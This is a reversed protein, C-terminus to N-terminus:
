PITVTGMDTVTGISVGVSNVVKISLPPAPVFVVNYTGASLGKIMFNGNVDPYTGISDTGTVAYIAPHQSVPSVVGKIAGSTAVTSTRIVPKLIYDGNGEQVISRSADFDLLVVYTIGNVLTYHVQLKLGSQQASPTKVPYSKGSIVVSNNTGLVLRIQSVTGSSLTGNALFTDVGNTLKTLDYVGAHTSLNVWGNDSNGSNVQVQQVDVLVADYPGAADTMRMQMPYSGSSTNEKKCATFSVMAAMIVLYLIRIKMTKQLMIYTIDQILHFPLLKNLKRQKVNDFDIL